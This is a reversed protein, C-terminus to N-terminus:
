IFKETEKLYIFYNFYNSSNHFTENREAYIYVHIINRKTIFNLFIHRYEM